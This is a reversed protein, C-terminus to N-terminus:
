NIKTELQLYSTFKTFNRCVTQLAVQLTQQGCNTEYYVESKVEFNLPNMGTGLWVYTTFKAFNGCSLQALNIVGGFVHYTM